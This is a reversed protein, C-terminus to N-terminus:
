PCQAVVNMRLNLLIYGGLHRPSRVGWIQHRHGSRAYQRGGPATASACQNGCRHLGIGCAIPRGRARDNRTIHGSSHIVNRHGAAGTKGSARQGNERHSKRTRACTRHGTRGRPNVAGGRAAGGKGGSSRDGEGRCRDSSVGESVPHATGADDVHILAVHGHIVIERNAHREVSVLAPWSSAKTWCSGWRLNTSKRRGSEGTRSSKYPRPRASKSGLWRRSRKWQAFDNPSASREEPWAAWRAM